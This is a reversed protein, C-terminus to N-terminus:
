KIGRKTEYNFDIIIKEGTRIINTQSGTGDKFIVKKIIGKESVSGEIHEVTEREKVLKNIYFSIAAESEGYFLMKGNDCVICRQAWQRMAYENHSVLVISLNDKKKLQHMKRFCKIQFNRDGVALVED